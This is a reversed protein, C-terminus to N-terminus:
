IGWEILKILNDNMINMDKSYVPYGGAILSQVYIILAFTTLKEEDRV